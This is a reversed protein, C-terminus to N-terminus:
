CVYSDPIFLDGKQYAPRCPRFVNSVTGRLASCSNGKGQSRPMRTRGVGSGMGTERLRLCPPAPPPFHSIYRLLPNCLPHPLVYSQTLASLAATIQARQTQFSNPLKNLASNSSSTGYPFHLYTTNGENTLYDCEYRTDSCQAVTHYANWKGRM